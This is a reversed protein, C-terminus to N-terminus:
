RLELWPLRHEGRARQMLSFLANNTEFDPAPRRRVVGGDAFVAPVGGIAETEGSSSVRCVEPDDTVLFGESNPLEAISWPVFGEAITQIEIDAQAAQCFLAASLIHKIRLSRLLM